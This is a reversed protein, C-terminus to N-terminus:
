VEPYLSRGLAMVEPGSATNRADPSPARPPPKLECSSSDPLPACASRCVDSVSSDFPQMMGQVSSPSRRRSEVLSLVPGMPNREFFYQQTHVFSVLVLELVTEKSHEVEELERQLKEWKFRLEAEVESLKQENRLRKEVDRETVKKKRGENVRLTEVKTHYYEKEKLAAVCDSQLARLQRIRDNFTRLEAHAHAREASLSHDRAPKTVQEGAAHLHDLTYQIGHHAAYVKQMTRAITRMNFGVSSWIKENEEVAVQLQPFWRHLEEVTHDAERLRQDTALLAKDGRGSIALKIGHLM